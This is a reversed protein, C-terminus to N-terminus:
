SSRRERDTPALLLLLVCVLAVDYVIVTGLYEVPLGLTLILGASIVLLGLFVNTAARTSSSSRM